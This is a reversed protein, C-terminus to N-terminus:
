RVQLVAFCGFGPLERLLRMHADIIDAGRLYGAVARQTSGDFIGTAPRWDQLWSLGAVRGPAEGNCDVAIVYQADHAVRQEGNAIRASCQVHVHVVSYGAREFLPADDGSLILGSPLQTGAAGAPFTRGGLPVSRGPNSDLM